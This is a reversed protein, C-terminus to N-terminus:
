YEQPAWMPAGMPVSEVGFLYQQAANNAFYAQRTMSSGPDNPSYDAESHFPVRGVSIINEKKIVNGKEDKTEKTWEKDINEETKKPDWGQVIAKQIEIEPAFEFHSNELTGGPTMYNRGFYRVMGFAPGNVALWDAVNPIDGIDGWDDESDFIAQRIANGEDTDKSIDIIDGDENRVLNQNIDIALGSNHHSVKNPDKPRYANHPVLHYGFTNYFFKSIAIWNEEVAQNMFVDKPNAEHNKGVPVMLDLVQENDLM